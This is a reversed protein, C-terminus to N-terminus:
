EEKVLKALVGDTLAFATLAACLCLAAILIFVKSRHM